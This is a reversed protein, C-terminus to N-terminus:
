NGLSARILHRKRVDSQFEKLSCAVASRQEANTEVEVATIYLKHLKNDTGLTNNVHHLGDQLIDDLMIGYANMFKQWNSGASASTPYQDSLANSYASMFTGLTNAMNSTNGSLISDLYSHRIM